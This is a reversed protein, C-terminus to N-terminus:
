RDGAALKLAGDTCRRGTQKGAMRKGCLGGVCASGDTALWGGFFDSHLHERGTAVRDVRNNSRREGRGDDDWMLRPDAAIAARDRERNIATPSDRRDVEVRHGGGGHLWICKRDICGAFRDAILM